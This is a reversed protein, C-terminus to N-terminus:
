ERDVIIYIYIVDLLLNHGKLHLGDLSDLTTTTLSEFDISKLSYKLNVGM